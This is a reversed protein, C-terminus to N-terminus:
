ANPKVSSDLLLYLDRLSWVFMLMSLSSARMLESPTHSTILNRERSTNHRAKVIMSLLTHTVRELVDVRRNREDVRNSM